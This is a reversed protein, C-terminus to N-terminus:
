EEERESGYEGGLLCDKFYNSFFQHNLEPKFYHKRKIWVFGDGKSIVAVDIPERVTEAELSVKRKFATLKVLSEAMAALEDKPLASVVGMVPSEHYLRRYNILEESWKDVMEISINVLKEELEKKEADALSEINEIIIKPYKQFIELVSSEIVAGYSPDIGTMFTSVMERQAFPVIVANQESTIKIEDKMKYHLYNNAMGVVSFHRLSPYIENEGFGAIVVGSLSPNEMQPHFKTLLYGAIETLKRSLTKSIPLNEFVEKKAKRIVAGYKKRIKPFQTKAIPSPFDATEWGVLHEKITQSSIEKVLEDNVFGNERFADEIEDTIM